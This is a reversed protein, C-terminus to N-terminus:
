RATLMAGSNLWRRMETKGQAKGNNGGREARKREVRDDTEHPVRISDLNFYYRESKALLFVPEWSNALRDRGSFPMANPKHWCVVNRLWWGDEQLALAVRFPVMSLQKNRKWGKAPPRGDVTGCGGYYTDGLNLWATGSPSLVRRVESFVAVIKDVYDQLELELGVQGSNGYDRAGWYPPSTVCTDVCGDPLTELQKQSDGILLAYHASSFAAARCVRNWTTKGVKDGSM